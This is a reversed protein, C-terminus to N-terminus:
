MQMMAPAATVAVLALLTVSMPLALATEAKRGKDEARKKRGAWLTEGEFALKEMLDAGTYRNEYILNMMRSLERIQMDGAKICLIGTIDGNLAEAEQRASNLLRGMADDKEAKREDAILALADDFVMGSGLLLVIKNNFEPLAKIISDAEAAAKKGAKDKEGRYGYLAALPALVLPLLYTRSVAPEEWILPTGDPLASPLELSGDEPITLSRILADLETKLRDEESPMLTDPLESEARKHRLTVTRTVRVGERDAKLVLEAADGGGPDLIGIVRGNDVVYIDSGSGTIMFCLPVLVVSLAAIVALKKWEKKCHDLFSM